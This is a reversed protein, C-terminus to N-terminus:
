TLRKYSIYQKRFFNLTLIILGGFILCYMMTSNYYNKYFSESSNILLWMTTTLFGAWVFTWSLISGWIINYREQEKPFKYFIAIWNDKYGLYLSTTFEKFSLGKEKPVIDLKSYISIFLAYITYILVVIMAITMGNFRLGLVTTLPNSEKSFDPTFNRTSILDFLRTAIIISSM